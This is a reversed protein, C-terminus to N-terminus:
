QDNLGGSLCNHYATVFLKDIDDKEIPNKFKINDWQDQHDRCIFKYIRVVDEKNTQRMQPASYYGLAYSLMFSLLIGLIISDSM